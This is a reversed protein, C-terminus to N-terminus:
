RRERGLGVAALEEDEDEDSLDADLDLDGDLDDGASPLTDVGPMTSIDTDGPVIPAQGTLVGQASEMATKGVQVAALLETLAASALQQFQQSQEVGMDNKVSDALAPLDKFQMESIEEMMKQMRDVMDQAALVVQATQIESERVMRKVKKAERALALQNVTKQEDPTLAQGRQVKDMVSKTKPDRQAAQSMATSTPTSGATTQPLAQESIRHTLAQELMMLKLYDPNRESFHRSPSARHEQMLAQVRGLMDRARDADLRDFSVQNGLRREIVRAIHETPRRAGLEHLKM